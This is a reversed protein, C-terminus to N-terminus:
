DLLELLDLPILPKQGPLSEIASNLHIAAQSMGLADLMWLCENLVGAIEAVRQARNTGDKWEPPVTATHTAAVRPATEERLNQRM